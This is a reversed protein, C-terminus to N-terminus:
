LEYKQYLNRMYERPTMKMRRKFVFSFYSQSSFGCAYAIETLSMDTSMLLQIAIKIRREEVYERLTMGVAAKFCTHFHVPSLFVADAVTQLTLEETINEKIFRLATEMRIANSNKYNGIKSLGETDRRLTYILELFLSQQMIEQDGSVDNYKLLKQFLRAYHEAKDTEFFDPMQMLADYLVGEHLIIHVFYCKYPFRTHRIQGPKACIVMCPTIAMSDEGIYSIGGEEISLEIEFMSTKRNKSVMTNKAAYQSNYIGVAVIEPLVM